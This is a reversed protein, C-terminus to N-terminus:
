GAAAGEISVWCASVPRGYRECSELPQSPQDADDTQNACFVVVVNSNQDSNQLLRAEANFNGRLNALRHAEAAGSDGCLYM